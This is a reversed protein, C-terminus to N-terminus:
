SGPACGSGFKASRHGATGTPTVLVAAGGFEIRRYRVPRAAIWALPFRTQQDDANAHIILASGDADLLPMRAGAAASALTVYPTFVEAAFAGSAPAYVNPLDGAEPGNPNLLGHQPGGHGVHARELRFVGNELLQSVHERCHLFDLRPPFFLACM